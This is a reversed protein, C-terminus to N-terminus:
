EDGEDKQVGFPPGASLITGLAENPEAETPADPEAADGREEDRGHAQVYGQRSLESGEEDAV